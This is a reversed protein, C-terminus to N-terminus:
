IKKVLHNCSLQYYDLIEKNSGCKPFGALSYNKYKFFFNFKSNLESVLLTFPTLGGIQNDFFYVKDSKKIMNIFIKHNFRNLSILSALQYDNASGKKLDIALKLEQTLTLGYTIVLIKKAIARKKNWSKIIWPDFIKTKKIPKIPAVPLPNLRFFLSVDFYIPM